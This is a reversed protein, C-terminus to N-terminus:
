RREKRRFNQFFLTAVFLECHGMGILQSYNNFTQRHLLLQAAYENM